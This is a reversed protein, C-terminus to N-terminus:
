KAQLTELYASLNHIRLEAQAHSQGVESLLPGWIPMDKAGHAAPFAGEGRITAMVKMM